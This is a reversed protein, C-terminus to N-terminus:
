GALALWPAAVAPKRRISDFITQHDDMTQYPQDVL